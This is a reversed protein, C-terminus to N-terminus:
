LPGLALCEDLAILGQAPGAQVRHRRRELRTRRVPPRDGLLGAEGVDVGAAVFLFLEFGPADFSRKWSSPWARCPM